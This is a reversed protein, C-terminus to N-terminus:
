GTQPLVLILALFALPQRPVAPTLVVVHLMAHILKADRAHSVILLDGVIAAHGGRTAVVVLDSEVIELVRLAPVLAEQLGRRALLSQRRGVTDLRPRGGSRLPVVM